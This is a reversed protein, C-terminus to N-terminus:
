RLSLNRKQAHRQSHSQRESLLLRHNQKHNRARKFIDIEKDLLLNISNLEEIRKEILSIGNIVELQQEKSPVLIETDCLDEWSFVERASGWSHYRAYRDFEPNSFLLMLYEPVLKETDKIKFPIYSSSILCKDAEKLLAISIKDGNRSTVPGYAFQGKEVIKYTSFDTGISNAHSEIFKKDISVGLLNSVELTTNRINIQEIYEGLKKNTSTM